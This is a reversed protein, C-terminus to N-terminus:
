EAQLFEKVEKYSNITGLFQISILESNIGAIDSFNFKLHKEILVPSYNKDTIFVTKLTHNDSFSVADPYNYFCVLRNYFERFLANENIKSYEKSDNKLDLFEKISKSFDISFKLVTSNEKLLPNLKEIEIKHYSDSINEFDSIIENTINQTSLLINSNKSRCVYIESIEEKMMPSFLQLMPAMSNDSKQFHLIQNEPIIGYWFAKTSLISIISNADFGISNDLFYCIENRKLVACTKLQHKLIFDSFALKPNEDLTSAKSLLGM